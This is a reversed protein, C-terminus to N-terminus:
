QRMSIMQNAQRQRAMLYPNSKASFKATTKQFAAKDMSAAAAVLAAGQVRPVPHELYKRAIGAVDKVRPKLQEDGQWRQALPVMALLVSELYEPDRSQLEMNLRPVIEVGQAAVAMMAASRVTYASDRLAEFIADYAREDTLKGLSSVSAIRERENRSKAYERLVLIAAPDQLDGLVALISPRVHEYSVNGVKSALRPSAPKYKMEGLIGIANRRMARQTTDLAAYLYPAAADPYEKFLETMARRELSELSALKNQGVWQVAPLGKAALALRARKVKERNDTVEWLAADHFLDEITRLTDEAHLEVEPAVERPRVSDLPADYGIAYLSRVWFLSDAEQSGRYTDKGEADAFVAISGFGRSVNVGGQGLEMETVNYHDNGAGDCFIAASNNIAMAQGGSITYQDDGSHDYMLAVALDHAGGQGPGFRSGYRDDGSLDEMVGAALHIGAGQVYQTADYADNGAEDLLMGLSYWYGVGQAYIEADYFDNGEKDRLLAFGGGARPRFGIAFGQAFSRYDEPRLPAHTVYGGARYVDNGQGDVLGAAGWTSAFAQCSHYADYTDRGSEDVFASVGCVAGSQAFLGAQYFDDGARDFFFAAGCFSAGQSFAGTRYVDNGGVDVLGGLGLVGCAQDAMMGSIYSDNGGLDVVASVPNGLTAVGAGVRNYYRDDGGLDIILAFNGRYVNAGTGGIVFRGYPTDRVETCGGEVGEVSIAEKREPVNQWREVGVTLGRAFAYTAAALADRNVRSILTLVSDEDVKQTTDVTAGFARYLAGKLTDDAAIDEDQFWLPAALLLARQEDASLNAFAQARYGEALAFASLFPEFLDQDTPKAAELQADIDDFVYQPIRAGTFATMRGVSKTESLATPVSSVFEHGIRYAETPSTLATRIQPLLFTDDEAWARDSIMDQTTLGLLALASDVAASKFEVQAFGPVVVALIALTILNRKVPTSM